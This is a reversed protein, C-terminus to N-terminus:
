EAVNATLVSQAHRASVSSALNLKYHKIFVNASSWTAQQCIDQISINKMEAWSTSQKRTSHAKVKPLPLDKQVYAEQICSKLWHAISMKSAPKGQRGKQFTVFFQTTNGQLIPNTVEIYRKISRCVCVARLSQDSDPSDEVLPTFDMPRNFNESKVVKPRFSPHTRFVVGRQSITCFTPRRDLAKLECLRNASSMAVLFATKLTLLRLPIKDLPEFPPKSLADLVTPLDWSPIYDRIPPHKTLAGRLFKKMIPLRLLSDERGVKRKFYHHESSISSVRSKMTNYSLGRDLVSQLFNLIMHVTSTYPDIDKETCWKAYDKWGSSYARRTSDSTAALCTTVAEQSLGRALLDARQGELSGIGAGGSEPPSATGTESNGSRTPSTVESSFRNPSGPPTSVMGEQGLQSCDLDANGRRPSGEGAGPLPNPTSPLCVRVPWELELEPCRDGQSSPSVEPLLVTEIQCKRDICVSRHVANVVTQFRGSGSPQEFVVRHPEGDAQVVQRSSRQGQRPHTHSPARNQEGLVVSANGMNDPLAPSVQNRRLQKHLSPSIHQGDSYSCMQGERLPSFGKFCEVSGPTGPCQYSTYEPTTEMEGPSVTCRLPSGVIEQMCRDDGYNITESSFVDSRPTFQGFRVVVPNHTGAETSDHDYSQSGADEQGLQCEPLDSLAEHLTQGSPDDSPVFGDAGLTQPLTQSVQLYGSPTTSTCVSYDPRSERQAPFSGPCHYRLGHRPLDIESNSDSQVQQFQHPLRGETVSGNDSIPSSSTPGSVQKSDLLRRPVPVYTGRFPSSVGSCPSTGEHIGKPSNFPRFTPSQIPLDQRSLCLAPIQLVQSGYTCPLVRRKFRYSGALQREQNTELCGSTFADQIYPVKHLHEPREFKNCAENSREEESGSLVDFLVRPQPFPSGRHCEKAVDRSDRATALTDSAEDKNTNCKFDFSSPKAALRPSLRTQSCLPRVQRNYGEGM